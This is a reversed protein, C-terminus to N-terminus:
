QHIQSFENEAKIRTKRKKEDAFQKMFALDKELCNEDEYDDYQKVFSKIEAMSSEKLSLSLNEEQEEPIFEQTAFFPTEDQYAISIVVISEKKPM